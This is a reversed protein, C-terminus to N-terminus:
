NAASAQQDSEEDSRLVYRGPAAEIVALGRDGPTRAPVLASAGPQALLWQRWDTWWSGAHESAGRLFDQPAAPLRDSTWYGYREAAPPNILGTVHGSGSLVFRVPGGPLQAGRYARQWPSIRDESFSLFYSAVKVKGVDIAVGALSLAKCVALRNGEILEELVFRHLAAPVRASDSSWYLLDAPFPGKGLLYSSVVFSWVLENHHLIRFAHATLPSELDARLQEEVQALQPNDPAASDDPASFDILSALFTASAARRDRKAAMWALTAMLLTGGLCYGALHIQQAGTAQQVAAIAALTGDSLYTDFSKDALEDGPDIWSIVFTTFGQDTTWKVFSNSERLDFVYYRNIWPPVILLPQAYQLPTTPTYQILQLLANEYVVKGSTAALNEGLRWTDAALESAAPGGGRELDALLTKFGAILNRGQSSVTIRLVEPNTLAFNTPSLAAVYRETLSQMEANAAADNGAARAVVAQLHRSSILYSQKLFDFLFNQEWAQDRFRPDAADPRVVAHAPMGMAKLMAHQWLLVHDRMLDLQAQALRYPSAMLRASADMFAQAARLQDGYLQAKKRPQRKIHQGLLRSAQEAVVAYSAALAASPDALEGHAAAAPLPTTTM